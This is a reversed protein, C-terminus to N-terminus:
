VDLDGKRAAVVRDLGSLDKIVRIECFGKKRLIESVEDAEDYGIEYFIYGGENLLEMGDSTIRRYFDLGDDGGCLATYPEYEKVDAMLTEMDKKRIYPPNSVIIDYKCEPLGEFIDGLYFETKDEVGNNKANKNSIILATESIDTGFCDLNAYKALSVSICGSGLGIEVSTKLNKESATKIIEEVLIETDPRPILIGECVEFDLGMFERHGTIYAAPERKSRRSIMNMFMEAQGDELIRDGDTLIEIRSIGLCESLLYEAEFKYEELGAQRLIDAGIKIVERIKM